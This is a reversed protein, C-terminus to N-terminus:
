PNDSRYRQHQFWAQLQQRCPTALIGGTVALRHNSAASDPVNLVTRLAGAKPDDAGYVVAGLRALGIAGACMPCPELTVYLTCDSLRWAQRQEGAQRIAVIEAHATPDHDQERRNQGTAICDGRGDVIVAGVPVDGAAGAQEAQELAIAMWRRHTRYAPADMPLSLVSM